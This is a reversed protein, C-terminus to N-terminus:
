LRALEPTKKRRRKKRAPGYILGKAPTFRLRIEPFAKNPRIFRVRGFDVFAKESVFNACRGKLTHIAHNEIKIKAEVLDAPDNTRRVVKRNAVHVRWSVDEVKLGHAQLLGITLPELQDRDTVAFVELFPAVPRIKGDQKFEPVPSAPIETIEGSRENVVLTRKPIIARFGLPQDTELNITYNHM